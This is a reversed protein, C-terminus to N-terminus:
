GGEGEGAVTMAGILISPARLNAREDPDDGLAQIDMLMRKLNSAITLEHVPQRLEGGEVWFGAAGRSYDGNVGNVGQGMLETVHLGRGMERLLGEFDLARGALALNHAGGANGTAALGLKRASYSSLLYSRVRGAELFAQERTAVGDGDFAASGIRKPLLPQELVTLHDSAVQEGLCDLLFSAKRYQAGGSLAGLLHGALSRATQPCFLVPYVGTAVRQPSLRAVARRAATRGVQEPAELDQADRAATYWFDRQMGNSDEAILACSLGHRTTRRSGIFGQSNGYVQCSQNASAQAGESNVIRRDLALGAAECQLAAAEAARTDLPAPHFLDLDPLRAPMLAADALGNCPDEGTHRAINLAKAVTERIAAPRSDSTSAAGKRLGVYVTIGFSRDQTSEVTELAGKRVQVSLGADQAAAVAAASAGQRKAEALIAAALARLQEECRDIDLAQPM